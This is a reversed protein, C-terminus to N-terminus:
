THVEEKRDDKKLKNRDQLKIVGEVVKGCVFLGLLISGLLPVMLKFFSKTFLDLYLIIGVSPVVFFLSLHDIIFNSTERVDKEKLIGSMLALLLIIMGLVNAPMPIGTVEVLWKGIFMIGVILTFQKVIKM